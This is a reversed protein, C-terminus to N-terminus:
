SKKRNVKVQTHTHQVKAGQLFYGDAGSLHIESLYCKEGVKDFVLQDQDGERMALRTTYPVLVGKGSDMNRLLLTGLTADEQVIEYGGAPMEKGAVAFAFPVKADAVARGAASALGAGTLLLVMPLLSLVYKKM